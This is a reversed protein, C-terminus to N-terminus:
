ITGILPLSRKTVADMMLHVLIAGAGVLLVFRAVNGWDDNPKWTYLKYGAVGVLGVVAVSHFFERHHPHIAPELLDPLNTCLAAIGAGVLPKFSPDRNPELHGLVAGIAVAAVLRHTTGNPM